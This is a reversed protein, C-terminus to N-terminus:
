TAETARSRLTSLLSAILALLLLGLTVAMLSTATPHLSAIASRHVEAAVSDGASAAREYGGLEVGILRAQDLRLLWGVVMGAAVSLRLAVAWRPLSRTAVVALLTLAAVAACALEVIGSIYFIRNAVTGAALSWHPGSYSAYAPLRPDLSHMTPFLVAASVASLVITGIWVGLAAAHLLELAATRPRM